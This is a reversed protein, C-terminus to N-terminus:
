LSAGKWFLFVWKGKEASNVVFILVESRIEEISSDNNCSILSSEHRKYFKDYASNFYRDIVAWELFEFFGLETWWM